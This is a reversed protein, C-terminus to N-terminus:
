DDILSGSGAGTSRSIESDPVYTQFALDELIKWNSKTIFVRSSFCMEHKLKSISLNVIVRDVVAPNNNKGTSVFSRPSGISKFGKWSIEFKVGNTLLVLLTGLLTLPFRVNKFELSKTGHTLEYAVFDLVYIGVFFGVLNKDGNSKGESLNGHRKFKGANLGQLLPIFAEVSPLRVRALNRISNSLEMAEGWTLGTAKAAKKSIAEVEGLSFM